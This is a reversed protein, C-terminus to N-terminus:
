KSPQFGPCRQLTAMLDRGVDPSHLDARRHNGCRGPRYNSCDACSVRDDHERDRKVLREALAEADPEPWGWRLLRARRDLFAAIDADCWSASSPEPQEALLSLLEGKAARLAARTDDTLKSAPRIVLRDGDAALSFGTGILDALLDRASV